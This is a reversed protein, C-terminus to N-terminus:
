YYPGSLLSLFFWHKICIVRRSVDTQGETNSPIQQLLLPDRLYISKISTYIFYSVNPFRSNSFFISTNQITGKRTFFIGM